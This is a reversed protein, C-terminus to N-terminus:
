RIGILRATAFTSPDMWSTDVVNFWAKKGDRSGGDDDDNIHVDLGLLGSVAVSSQGLTSWPLKVEVVYGNATAVRVATVGTIAGHKTEEVTLSAATWTFRYQYDNSAYVSSKDNNADVYIEVSDDNWTQLGSDNRQMDDTVQVLVYLNTTDWLTRFSGSLDNDNAVSGVILNAITQRNAFSWATEINGDISPATGTQVIEHDARMGALKATAFTSRNQWSTDATNFWARKGDRDGGDDDDNVHVDLGLLAGKTVVSQGLTNWPLKVEVIYGNATAIRSAIVGTTAAHKTEEIRLSTATWTFRYQYDNSAYVSSKDNNADVYIEVSDDKWTELSSDNQQAEDKIEMLVYLNNVDWLTRFAGSLDNDDAVSGVVINGITQRNAASWITDVLGDITPAALTQVIQHDSIAPSSGSDQLYGKSNGYTNSNMDAGIGDWGARPNVYHPDVGSGPRYAVTGSGLTVSGSTFTGSSGGFSIISNTLTVQGSSDEEVGYDGSEHITCFNMSITADHVWVGALSCCGGRKQSYGAICNNMSSMGSHFRFERKNQFAVCDNMKVDAKVDFGGDENDLARCGIFNFFGNGQNIVFGDGNWYTDSQQNTHHHQALCDEFTINSSAGESQGPTDVLFGFPYPEADAYWATDGGSMDATCNRVVIDTCNHDFRFGQKSYERAKVNEILWGQAYFVYVPHECNRISLNRLTIGVCQSTILDDTRVARVVDQIILNEISWYSAGNGFSIAFPAGGTPNSRSWTGMDMVPLSGGTSEGIIRKPSSATGSSLLHIAQSYAGSGLHLVDGAQMTTDLVNGIQSQSLANAWNSGNLSGAGAPTAYYDSALGAQSITLAVAIVFLAKGFM